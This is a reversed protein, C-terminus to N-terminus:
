PSSGSPPEARHGDPLRFYDTVRLPWARAVMVQRGELDPRMEQEEPTLNDWASWVARSQGAWSVWPTRELYTARDAMPKYNTRPLYAGPLEELNLIDYHGNAVCVRRPTKNFPNALFFHPGSLVWDEPSEPFTNDGHTRRFITGDRQQLTENWLQSVYCSDGLDALTRDWAALKALVSNLTQAHLAPLRARRAPTGPEDYLRAFVALAADDVRVIRKGHGATNWQGADNKYGSVLGTGDHLYCADVTAPAFLNALQDFAPEARRAGYINVSYKTLHHVEAFLAMENVFQYHRRLRGYM